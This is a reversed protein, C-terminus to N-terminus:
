IARTGWVERHPEKRLYLFSAPPVKKKRGEGFKKYVFTFPM